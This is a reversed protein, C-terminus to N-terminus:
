MVTVQSVSTTVHSDCSQGHCDCSEMYVPKDVTKAINLQEREQQPHDRGGGM